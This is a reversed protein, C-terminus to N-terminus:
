YGNDSGATRPARVQRQMSELDRRLHAVLDPQRQMQLAAQKEEIADKVKAGYRRDKEDVESRLFTASYM